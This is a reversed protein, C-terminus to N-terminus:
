AVLKGLLPVRAVLGRLKGPNKKDYWLVALVTVVVIVVVVWPRSKAVAVAGAAPNEM